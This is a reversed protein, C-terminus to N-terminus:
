NFLSQSLWAPTVSLDLVINGASLVQRKVHKLSCKKDRSAM